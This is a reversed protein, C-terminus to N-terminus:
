LDCNFARIEIKILILTFKYFLALLDVVFFFGCDNLFFKKETKYNSVKM